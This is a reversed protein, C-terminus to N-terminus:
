LSDRQKLPIFVRRFLYRLRAPRSLEDRLLISTDRVLGIDTEGTEARSYRILSVCEGVPGLAVGFRGTRDVRRGFAMPSEGRDRVLNEARLLDTLEQVWVDFVAKANKARRARFAPSTQIVRLILALLLLLLILWYWPFSGSRDPSDPSTLPATEQDPPPSPIDEDPASDPTPADEPSSPSPTPSPTEGAGSADGDSPTPSPTPEDGSGGSEPPEPTPPSWINIWVM